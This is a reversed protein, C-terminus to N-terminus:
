MRKTITALTPALLVKDLAFSARRAFSSDEFKTKLKGDVLLDAIKGMVAERAKEVLEQSDIKLGKAQKLIEKLEAVLNLATERHHRKCHVVRYLFGFYGKGKSAYDEFLDIARLIERAGASETLHSTKTLGEYSKTASKKNKLVSEAEFRIAEKTVPASMLKNIGELKADILPVNEITMKGHFFKYEREIKHHLCQYILQSSYDRTKEFAARNLKDFAVAQQYNKKLSEFEAPSIGIKNVTQIQDAIITLAEKFYDYQDIEQQWLAIEYKLYSTNTKKAPKSAPKDISKEDLDAFSEFESTAEDIKNENRKIREKLTANPHDKQNCLLTIWESLEQLTSPSKSRIEQLFATRNEWVANKTDIFSTRSVLKYLFEDHRPDCTWVFGFTNALVEDVESAMFPPFTDLFNGTENNTKEDAEPGGQAGYLHQHMFAQLPQNAYIKFLDELDNVETVLNVHPSVKNLISLLKFLTDASNPLIYRADEPLGDQNLQLVQGLEILLKALNDHAIKAQEPTLERIALVVLALVEKCTINGNFQTTDKLLAKYANLKRPTEIEIDKTLDIKALNAAQFQSEFHKQLKNLAIGSSINKAYLNLDNQNPKLTAISLRHHVSLLEGLLNVLTCAIINTEPNAFSQTEQDNPFQLKIQTLLVLLKNLHMELITTSKESKTMRLNDILSQLLKSDDSPLLHYKILGDILYQLEELANDINTKDVVFGVPYLTQLEKLKARYANSVDSNIDIKVKVARRLQDWEHIDLPISLSPSLTPTTNYSLSQSKAETEIPAVTTSAIATTETKTEAEKAKKAALIKANGEELLHSFIALVYSYPIKRKADNFDSRTNESYYRTGINPVQNAVKWFFEFLSTTTPIDKSEALNALNDSLARISRGDEQNLLLYGLQPANGNLQQSLLAFRPNAM